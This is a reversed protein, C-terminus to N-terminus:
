TAVELGLLMAANGGLVAAEDAPQLGAARVSDAPRLDGMDFPHDSGLLVRDAGVTEVLSRLLAADHVVTDYHFRRLSDEPSEGLRSRAQPQFSHAHRLRGRLALIAGGGHALLVRLSPHREMTGTMVLHAATVTTELPNGVANWLYHEAFVPADFGRTTPHVFVLAGTEEAATWFPEFTEDGLFAGRVSAAVEVGRLVGDAMIARLMDAALPPDQLPVAGLAAIRDPRERVLRALGDNQLRARRAGEDPDVDYPLTVVLPCLVVLDTGAADQDAVIREPDTWERVASRVERGALEVVQHADPSERFVRPRWLEDPAADRAIEAVIVHAHADVVATM